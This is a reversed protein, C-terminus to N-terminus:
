VNKLDALSYQNLADFIIQNISRWSRPLKCRSELFCRHDERCCETIAPAGDVATVIEALKLEQPDKVLRYGGKSGRSSVILNAENLLKLLKSVTPLGIGTKEALVSASFSQQFDAALETLIILSYDALKSIKLM